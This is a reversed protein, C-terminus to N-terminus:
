PDSFCGRVGNGRRTGGTDTDLLELSFTTGGIANVPRTRTQELGHERLETPSYLPSKRRPSWAHLDWVHSSRPHTSTM